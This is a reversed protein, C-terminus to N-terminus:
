GAGRVRYFKLGSYVNKWGVTTGSKHAGYMVHRGHKYHTYLEVHGSSLVLDGNRPHNTRYMQDKTDRLMDGTTRPLKIGVSNYAKMVLGSCDWSSPGTAGYRYPDGHQRRAFQYAGIRKPTAAAKAKTQAAALVRPTAPAAAALTQSTVAPAAQPRASAEAKADILVATLVALALAVVLARFAHRAVPRPNPTSPTDITGSM